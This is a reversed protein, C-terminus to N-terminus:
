PSRCGRWPQLGISFLWTIVARGRLTSGGEGTWCAFPNPVWWALLTKANDVLNISKISAMSNITFRHLDGLFAQVRQLSEHQKGPFIRLTRDLNSLNRRRFIKGFFKQLEDQKLELVGAQYLAHASRFSAVSQPTRGRPDEQAFDNAGNVTRESGKSVGFRESPQDLSVLFMTRKITNEKIDPVGSGANHIVRGKGVNAM